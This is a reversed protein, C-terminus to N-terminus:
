QLTDTMLFRWISTDTASLRSVPAAEAAILMVLVSIRDPDAMGRACMYGRQPPSFMEGFKDQLPAGLPVILKTSVIISTSTFGSSHDCQTTTSKGAVEFENGRPACDRGPLAFAM